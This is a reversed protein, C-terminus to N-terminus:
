IFLHSIWLVPNFVPRDRAVLLFPIRIGSPSSMYFRLVENWESKRWTFPRVADQLPVSFFLLPLFSAFCFLFAKADTKDLIRESKLSLNKYSPAGFFLVSDCRAMHYFLFVWLVPPNIPTLFWIWGGSSHRSRSKLEVFHPFEEFYKTLGEFAISSRAHVELDFPFFLSHSRTM